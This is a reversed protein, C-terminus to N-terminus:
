RPAAAVGRKAARARCVDRVTTDILGTLADPDINANRGKIAAVTEHFLRWHAADQVFKPRGANEMGETIRACIRQM